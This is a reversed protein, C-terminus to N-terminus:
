STRETITVALDPCINECQRCGVCDDERIVTSKTRDSLELVSKPCVGICLGCGKCYGINIYVNYKKTV